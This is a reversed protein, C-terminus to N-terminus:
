TNIAGFLHVIAIIDLVFLFIASIYVNVMARNVTKQAEKMEEMESKTPENNLLKRIRKFEADIFFINRTNTKGQSMLFGQLNSYILILISVAIVQFSEYVKSYIALVFWISILNAIITWVYGLWHWYSKKKTEKNDVNSNKAKENLLEDIHELIFPSKRFEYESMGIYTPSDENFLSKKLKEVYEEKKGYKSAKRQEETLEWYEKIEEKETETDPYWIWAGEEGRHVQLGKADEKVLEEVKAVGAKLRQEAKRLFRRYESKSIIEPHKSLIFFIETYGGAIHMKHWELEKELDKTIPGVIVGDRVTYQRRPEELHPESSSELLRISVEIPDTSIKYQYTQHNWWADDKISGEVEFEKRDPFFDITTVDYQDDIVIQNDEDIVEIKRM